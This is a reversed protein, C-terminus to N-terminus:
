QLALSFETEREDVIMVLEDLSDFKEVLWPLSVLRVESLWSLVM